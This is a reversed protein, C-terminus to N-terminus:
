ISNYQYNVFNNDIIHHYGRSKRSFISYNSRVYVQVLLHASVTLSLYDYISCSNYPISNDIQICLKLYIYALVTSGSRNIGIKVWYKSRVYMQVFVQASVMLSLYDYISCLNYPISIDTQICLKMYIYALVTSGSNKFRIKVCIICCKVRVSVRVSMIFQSLGIFICLYRSNYYSM